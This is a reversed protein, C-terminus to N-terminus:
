SCCKAQLKHGVELLTKLWLSVVVLQCASLSASAAGLVAACAAAGCARALAEFSKEAVRSGLDDRAVLCWAHVVVSRTQGPYGHM